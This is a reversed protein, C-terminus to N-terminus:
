YLCNARSEDNTGLTRKQQGNGNQDFSFSPFMSAAYYNPDLQPDNCNPTGTKSTFECSHNLGHLHGFEHLLITQLDPVRKGNSFFAQYNLEIVSMYISNLPSTQSFCNTTLAIASKPYSTPWKELKYIVITGNYQSGILIPNACLTGAQSPNIAPSTTPNATTGYSLTAIKKSTTFFQNWTDAASTIATTETSNFQGASFSVPIPTVAWKGSVTTSQDPPLACTTVVAQAAPPHYIGCGSMLLLIALRPLSITPEPLTRKIM